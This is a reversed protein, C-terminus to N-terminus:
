FNICLGIGNNSPSLYSSKPKSLSKNYRLISKKESNASTLALVIAITGCAINGILPTTQSKFNKANNLQWFLCGFQAGLAVYAGTIQAVSKDWQKGAEIDQHIIRKAESRSIKKDDQYYTKSWFGPFVTIEQASVKTCIMILIILIPTSVKFNMTYCKLSM